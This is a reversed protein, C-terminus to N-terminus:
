LSHFFFFASMLAGRRESDGPSNCGERESEADSSATFAHSEHTIPQESESDTTCDASSMTMSWSIWGPSM